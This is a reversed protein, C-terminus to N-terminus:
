DFELMHVDNAQIVLLNAFHLPEVAKAVDEPKIDEPLVLVYYKERDLQVLTEPLKELILNSLRDQITTEQRSVEEEVLRSILPRLLWELFKRM